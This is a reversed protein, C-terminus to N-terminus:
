NLTFIIGNESVDNFWMQRDHWFTNVYRGRANVPTTLVQEEEKFTGLGDKDFIAALVNNVAIEGAGINSNSLTIDLPSDIAQWYPVVLGTETKVYEANFAAYEVQTRMAIDWQDIIAFMQQNKPTHRNTKNENYLMSMNQMRSSMLRMQGVAYRLFGEDILATQATIATGNLANYDSVLNIIQTTQGNESIAAIRNAMCLRGLNELALELYNQIEGFIASIFSGMASASTFSEKLQWEQITVFCSYPSRITFFTQTAKPKRVIYMDISDGDQLDYSVDETVTPMDVKIKQVIAGWEISDKVLPKMQNSYKRFSIITRGIRQVLTNLFNETYNQSTLITQGMAVLSGTDVAKIASTGLTQEAVSNVLEYIQNTQM